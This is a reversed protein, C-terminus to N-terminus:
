KKRSHTEPESAPLQKAELLSPSNEWGCGLASCSQSRNANCLSLEGERGQPLIVGSSDGFVWSGDEGWGLGVPTEAAQSWTTDYLLMATDKALTRQGHSQKGTGAGGKWLLQCPALLVWLSHPCGQVPPAEPVTLAEDTYEWPGQKPSSGLSWKLEATLLGM